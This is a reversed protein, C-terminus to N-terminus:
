KNKKEKKKEEERFQEISIGTISLYSDVVRALRPYMQKVIFEDEKLSNLVIGYNGADWEKKLAPSIKPHELMKSMSEKQHLTFPESNSM